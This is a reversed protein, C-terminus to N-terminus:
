WTAAIAQGGLEDNIIEREPGFLMRIPYARSVGNIEVGLVLDDSELTEDAQDAAVFKVDTVPPQPHPLVMQPMFSTHYDSKRKSKRPTVPEDVEENPKSIRKQNCGQLAIGAIALVFISSIVPM